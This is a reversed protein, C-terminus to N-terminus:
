TRRVSALEDFLDDWAHPPEGPCEPALECEGKKCIVCYALGGDCYVCNIKECPQECKFFRHDTM